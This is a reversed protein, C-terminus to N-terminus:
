AIEGDPPSLAEIKELLRDFDVPKTEYDDSGAALARARDDTMAHATLAIVPIHGTASSGKLRRTAEWGDVDPLSLDMIVLDPRTREAVAVIDVGDRADVVEYGRFRLREAIMNRIVDHDEVLLIRM